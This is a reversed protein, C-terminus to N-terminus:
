KAPRKTEIDMGYNKEGMRTQKQYYALLEYLIEDYEPYGFDLMFVVVIGTETQGITLTAEANMTETYLEYPFDKLLEDDINVILLESSGKFKELLEKGHPTLKAKTLVEGLLDENDFTNEYSVEFVKALIDHFIDFLNSIGMYAPLVEIKELKNQEIGFDIGIKVLKLSQFYELYQHFQEVHMDM